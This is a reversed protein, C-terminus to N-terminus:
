LVVPAVGAGLISAGGIRVNARRKIGGATGNHEADAFPSCGLRPEPAFLNAAVQPPRGAVDGIAPTTRLFPGVATAARVSHEGDDVLLDANLRVGTRSMPVIRVHEFDAVAAHRIGFVARM